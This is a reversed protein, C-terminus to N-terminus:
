VHARPIPPLGRVLVASGWRGLVGSAGMGIGMDDVVARKGRLPRGLPGGNGTQTVTAKFVRRRKRAECKLKSKVRRAKRPVCVGCLVHLLSIM